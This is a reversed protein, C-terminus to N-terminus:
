YVRESRRRELDMGIEVPLVVEEVARLDVEVV